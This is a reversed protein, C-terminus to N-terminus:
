GNGVARGAAQATRRLQAVLQALTPDDEGAALEVTLVAPTDGRGDIVPVALEAAARGAGDGTVLYEAGAWALRQTALDAREDAPAEALALDWTADDARAALLRGAATRLAPLVRHSDRYLAGSAGDVREVYLVQARSLVAVEVTAAVQDRLGVLYPSLARLVPLRDLYSHSLRALEPGLGYRSSAPDQEALGAVVLSRLLRHVTPMTLGSREALETLTQLAAGQSLLDLLLAANRVTGLTGRPENDGM